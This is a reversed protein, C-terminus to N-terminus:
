TWVITLVWVWNGVRSGAWSLIRVMLQVRGSNRRAFKARGLTRRRKLNPIPRSHRARGSSVPRTGEFKGLREVEPRFCRGARTVDDGEVELGLSMTTEGPTNSSRFIPKIKRGLQTKYGLDNDGGSFGDIAPSYSQM